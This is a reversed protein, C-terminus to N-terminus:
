YLKAYNHIPADAFQIAVCPRDDESMVTSFCVEIRNDINFGVEDSFMNAKLGIEDYFESLSVYMENAIKYNMDNQAKRITEVSSNFYRGSLMDFCLVDGHGVIILGDPPNNKVRDQAVEDRVAQEKNSGLKEAVKDRYEQFSKESLSYAAAMAATQRISLRNAMVISAITVAGVGIPPIYLPWVAKVIETKTVPGSSIDQAVLDDEVVRVAKVTAKATLVSTAITGAVGVGALLTTSHEKVIKEGHKILGAINV